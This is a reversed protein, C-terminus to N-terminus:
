RTVILVAGSGSNTGFYTTADVASLVRIERINQVPIMLLDKLDVVTAGDLIIRVDQPGLLSTNGRRTAMQPNGRADERFYVFKVRDRIAEWANRASSAMLEEGSIVQSVAGSRRSGDEATSPPREPAGSACAAGLLLMTLPASRTLGPPPRTM